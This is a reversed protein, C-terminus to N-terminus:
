GRAIRDRLREQHEGFDDLWDQGTMRLTPGVNARWDGGRKFFLPERELSVRHEAFCRQGAEFEFRVRGDPLMTQAFRRGSQRTIYTAQRAGLESGPDVTTAWGSRYAVCGVEACTAPRTHTSRPARVAYTQYAQVPGVPTIRNVSVATGGM